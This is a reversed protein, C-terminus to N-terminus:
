PAARMRGAAPRATRFASEGHRLADNGMEVVGGAHRDDLDAGLLEHADALHRREVMRMDEEVHAVGVSIM